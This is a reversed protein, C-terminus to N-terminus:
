HAAHRTSPVQIYSVGSYLFCRAYHSGRTTGLALNSQVPAWHILIWFLLVFSCWHGTYLRINRINLIVYIHAFTPQCFALGLTVFFTSHSGAQIITAGGGGLLAVSVVLRAFSTRRPRRSNSSRLANRMNLDRRSRLNKNSKPKGQIKKRCDMRRPSESAISSTCRMTTNHNLAVLLCWYARIHISLM